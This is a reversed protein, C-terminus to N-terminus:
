IKKVFIMLLKGLGDGVVLDWPSSIEQQIGCNGGIKDEGQSGTGVLTSVSQSLLDIQFKCTVREIFLHNWRFLYFRGDLKLEKGGLTTLQYRKCVTQYWILGM